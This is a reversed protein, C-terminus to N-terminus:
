PLRKLSKILAMTANFFDDDMKEQCHILNRRMAGDVTVGHLQDDGTALSLGSVFGTLWGQYRYYEVIAKVDGKEWGAYTQRYHECSRVGYGLLELESAQLPWAVAWLLLLGIPKNM